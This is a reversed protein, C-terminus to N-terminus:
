AFFYVSHATIIMPSVHPSLCSDKSGVFLSTVCVCTPMSVWWACYKQRRYRPYRSSGALPQNRHIRHFAIRRRRVACPSGGDNIITIGVFPVFVHSDSVRFKNQLRKLYIQKYFRNSEFILLLIIFMIFNLVLTEIMGMVSLHSNDNPNNSIKVSSSFTPKTATM